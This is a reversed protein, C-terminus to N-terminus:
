FSLFASFALVACAAAGFADAALYKVWAFRPKRMSILRRLELFYAREFTHYNAEYNAPDREAVLRALKLAYANATAREGTTAMKHVEWNASQPKASKGFSVNAYLGFAKVTVISMGSKTRTAKIM